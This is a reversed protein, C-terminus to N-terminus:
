KSSFKSMVSEIMSKRQLINELREKLGIEAVMQDFGEERMNKYKELTKKIERMEEGYGLMGGSQTMRAHSTDTIFDYLKLGTKPTLEVKDGAKDYHMSWKGETKNYVLRIDPDIQMSIEKVNPDKIESEFQRKIEKAQRLSTHASERNALSEEMNKNVKHVLAAAALTGVAGASVSTKLLMSAGIDVAQWQAQNEIVAKALSHELADIERGYKRKIIEYKEKAKKTDMSKIAAIYEQYDVDQMLKDIMERNKVYAYFAGAGVAMPTVALAAKGAASGAAYMAKIPATAVKAVTATGRALKGGEKLKELQKDLRKLDRRITLWLGPFDGAISTAIGIAAMAKMNGGTVDDFIKYPGIHKLESIGRGRGLYKTGSLRKLTDYLREDEESQPNKALDETRNRFFGAHFSSAAEERAQVTGTRKGRLKGYEEMKGETYAEMSKETKAIGAMEVDAINKPSTGFLPAKESEKDSALKEMMAGSAGIPMIEKAKEVMNKSSEIGAIRAQRDIVEKAALSTGLDKASEITKSERVTDIGSADLIDKKAELNAAEFKGKEGASEMIEQIGTSGLKREGEVFGIGSIQKEGAQDLKFAAGEQVSTGESVKQDRITGTAQKFSRAETVTDAGMSDILKQSTKDQAIKETAFGEAIDKIEKGGLSGYIDGAEINKKVDVERSTALGEMFKEAGTRDAAEYSGVGRAIKQLTEGKVSQEYRDLGAEKLAMFNGAEKSAEFKSQEMSIESFSKGKGIRDVMMKAIMAKNASTQRALIKDINESAPDGGEGYINRAYAQADKLDNGIFNERFRVAMRTTIRGILDMTGKLIFWAIGPIIAYLYGAVGGYALADSFTHLGNIVNFGETNYFDNFRRASEFSLFMGLIIMLPTWLEIWVITKIYNSLVRIGGPLIVMVFIFPFFAYIIARLGAQIYPLTNMLFIGQGYNKLVTEAMTYGATLPIEGLGVNEKQSMIQTMLGTNLAIEEAVSRNPAVTGGTLLQITSDNMVDLLKADCSIIESGIINSVAKEYESILFGCTYSSGFMTALKNKPSLTGNFKFNSIITNPPSTPNKYYNLNGDKIFDILTKNPNGTKTFISLVKGGREDDAGAPMVVCQSFIAGFLDNLRMKQDNAGELSVTAFLNDGSYELIKKIGMIDNVPNAAMSNPLAKFASRLKEEMYVGISNASSFIFGLIDPVGSVVAGELKHGAQPISAATCYSQTHDKKKIVIDSTKGFAFTLLVTVTLVYGAFYKFSSPNREAAVKAVGIGFSIFGGILFTLKLLDIYSQNKLVSAIINFINWYVDIM